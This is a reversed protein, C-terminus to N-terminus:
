LKTATRLHDYVELWMARLLDYAVKRYKPDFENLLRYEGDVRMRVIVGANLGDESGYYYLFSFSPNDESVKDQHQDVSLHIQAWKALDSHSSLSGKFWDTYYYPMGRSLNSRSQFLGRHKWLDSFWSPVVSYLRDYLAHMFVSDARLEDLRNALRVEAEAVRPESRIYAVSDVRKTHRNFVVHIEEGDIQFLLENTQHEFKFLENRGHNCKENLQQLLEHHQLSLAPDGGLSQMM